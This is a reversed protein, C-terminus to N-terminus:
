RHLMIKKRSFVCRSVNQRTRRLFDNKRLWWIMHFTNSKVNQCVRPKTVYKSHPAHFVRNYAIVFRNVESRDRMVIKGSKVNKTAHWKEIVECNTMMELSFIQLYIDSNQPTTWFTQIQFHHGNHNSSMIKVDNAWSIFLDIFLSPCRDLFIGLVDLFIQSFCVQGQRGQLM